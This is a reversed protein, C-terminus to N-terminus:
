FLKIPKGTSVSEVASLAIKLARRGDELNCEVDKNHIVSDIFSDWERYYSEKFIGGHNLVAANDAIQRVKQFPTSIISTLRGPLFSGSRIELGDIDYFSVKLSGSHGYIEIENSISSKFSFVSSSLLGNSMRLTVVATEDQIDASISKAYVEEAETNFLYCLLDFHHIALDLIAGGGLRRNKRWESPISNNTTIASRVSQIPGLEGKEIIVKAKRVNRHWRLNFGAFAKLSTDAAKKILKESEELCLAVPKELFLHKGATLASMGLSFHYETPACVAVAEIEPRNILEYPDEYRNKIKYRDALNNLRDKNIDSLAFVEVNNLIKLSPLHFNETVSGCGIIGINLTRSTNNM